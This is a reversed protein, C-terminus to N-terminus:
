VCVRLLLTQTLFESVRLQHHSVPDSRFMTVHLLKLPLILNFFFLESVTRLFNPDSLVSLRVLNSGPFYVYRILLKMWLCSLRSNTHCLRSTMTVGGILVTVYFSRNIAFFTMGAKALGSFMTLNWCVGVLIYVVRLNHICYM